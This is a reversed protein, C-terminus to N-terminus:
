GKVIGALRNYIANHWLQLAQFNYEREKIFDESKQGHKKDGSGLEWTEPYSAAPFFVFTIRLHILHPIELVSLSTNIGNYLTDTALHQYDWRSCQSCHNQRVNLSSSLSSCIRLLAGLFILLISLRACPSSSFSSPKTRRALYFSLPSIIAILLCLPPM